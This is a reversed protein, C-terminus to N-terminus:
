RCHNDEDKIEEVKMIGTLNGWKLSPEKKQVKNFAEKNNSARVIVRHDGQPWDSWSVLFWKSKMKKKGLTTDTCFNNM